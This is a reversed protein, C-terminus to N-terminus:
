IYRKKYQLYNLKYTVLNILDVNICLLTIFVFELYASFFGRVFRLIVGATRSLYKNYANPHIEILVVHRRLNLGTDV